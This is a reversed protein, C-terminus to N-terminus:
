TYMYMSNTNATTNAIVVSSVMVDGAAKELQLLKGTDMAERRGARVVTGLALTRSTLDSLGVCSLSYQCQLSASERSSGRKLM